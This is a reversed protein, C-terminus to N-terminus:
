LSKQPNQNRKFIREEEEQGTARANSGPFTEQLELLSGLGTMLNTLEAFNQTAKTSIFWIAPNNKM